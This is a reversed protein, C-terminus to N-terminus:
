DFRNIYRAFVWGIIIVTEDENKYEVKTWHKQKKIIKVVSGRSLNYISKSKISNSVRVNLSDCSVFRYTNLLYKKDTEKNNSLEKSIYKKINKNFLQNDMSYNETISQSISVFTNHANETFEDWESSIIPFILSTIIVLIVPHTSFYKEVNEYASYIQVLIKSLREIVSLSNDELIDDVENVYQVVEECNIPQLYDDDSSDQYSAISENYLTVFKPIENLTEQLVRSVLTSEKIQLLYMNRTMEMNKVLEQIPSSYARRTMEISKALEQMPSSYAQRIMEISKALEQISSSYAQRMMEISKTLEKATISTQQIGNIILKNKNKVEIDLLEM